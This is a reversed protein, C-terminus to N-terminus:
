AAVRWQETFAERCVMEPPNAPRAFLFGQVYDAGSQRCVDLQARTEIGEAIVQIGLEKARDIISELKHREGRDATARMVLDRDIKVYDPRLAELYDMTAFGAGMDDVATGIGEARYYDLIRLLRRMDPINETEVVEFVLRSLPVTHEAAAEITTRLCIEPDYITNPLFNIFLRANAAKLAAGHRIASQRARQDLVHELKLKTCANIVAGAGIIETTGPRRARILAEHAFVDGTQIEIIPHFLSFLWDNDLAERVWEHELQALMQPLPESQILASLADSTEHLSGQFFCARMAEQVTVPLTRALRGLIAAESGAVPLILVAGLRRFPIGEARLTQSAAMQAHADHPGLLLAGREM